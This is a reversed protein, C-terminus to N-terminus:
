WAAFSPVFSDVDVNVCPIRTFYHGSVVVTKRVGSCKKLRQRVLLSQLSRIGLHFYVVCCMIFCLFVPCVSPHFICLSVIFYKYVEMVTWCYSTNVYCCILIIDTPLCYVVVCSFCCVFFLVCFLLVCMQEIIKPM